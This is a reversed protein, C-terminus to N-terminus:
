VRVGYQKAIELLEDSLKNHITMLGKTLGTVCDSLAVKKAIADDNPTHLINTYQSEGGAVFSAAEMNFAIRASTIAKLYHRSHRTDLWDAKGYAKKIAKM